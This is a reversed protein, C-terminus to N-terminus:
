AAHPSSALARPRCLGGTAARRCVLKGVGAGSSATARRGAGVVALLAFLWLSLALLGTVPAWVLLARWACQLRWAPRGDHRVLAIGAIRYSFEGRAVFAWIM